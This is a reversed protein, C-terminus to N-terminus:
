PQGGGQPNSFFVWTSNVEGGAVLEPGSIYSGGEWATRSNTILSDRLRKYQDLDSYTATAVCGASFCSVDSFSVERYQWCQQIFTNLAEREHANAAAPGSRRLNAVIAEREKETEKSSATTPVFKPVDLRQAVHRPAPLRTAATPLRDNNSEQGGTAQVLPEAISTKPSRTLWFLCLGVSTLTVAIMIGFLARM